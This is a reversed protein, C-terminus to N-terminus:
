SARKSRATEIDILTAAPANLREPERQIPNAFQLRTPDRFEEVPKAQSFLFGQVETCGHELLFSFQEPTEVGEVTVDLNLEHALVLMSRVIAASRRHNPLDNTFIRDIKLRDFSLRRLNNISTFGSGFDDMAVQVGLSRLRAFMSATQQFDNIFVDETVELELRRPDIGCDHIIERVHDVLESNIQVPSVNVSVRIDDPWQRAADIARRLFLDTLPLILGSQEALGVFEPPPVPGFDPHHWRALAEFGVVRLDHTRVLPQFHTAIDGRAIAGRLQETLTQRRQRALGIEPSFARCKGRGDAKAQFLALDASKLLEEDSSADEPYVAVGISAGVTITGEQQDLPRSLLRRLQQGILRPENHDRVDDCLVIFQDGSIRSILTGIPLEFRLKDAVARLILDGKVHGHVDNVEKFGDLDLWIVACRGNNDHARAVAKALRARLMERNPLGTLPDHHALFSIREQTQKRDGIDRIELLRRPSDGGDITRATIEVSILSGDKRCVQSEVCVDHDSLLIDIVAADRIFRTIIADDLENRDVGILSCFGANVTIVQLGSHVVIGANLGDFLSQLRQAEARAHTTRGRSATVGVMIGTALTLALVLGGFIVAALLPDPTAQNAPAAIAASGSLAAALMGAVTGTAPGVFRADDPATM